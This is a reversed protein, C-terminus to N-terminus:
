GVRSGSHLAVTAVSVCRLVVPALPAEPIRRSSRSLPANVARMTRTMAMDASDPSKRVVSLRRLTPTWAATVAMRAKPTVKTITEAPMSRDTPETAAREAVTSAQLAVCCPTGTTRATIRAIAVPM